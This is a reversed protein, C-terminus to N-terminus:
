QVCESSVFACVNCVSVSYVCMRQMYVWWVCWVYDYESHVCESCVSVAYVCMWQACESYMYVSVACVYWMDDCETCMYVHADVCM